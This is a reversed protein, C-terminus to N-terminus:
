QCSEELTLSLGSNKAWRNMGATIPKVANIDKIRPCLTPAIENFDSENIQVKTKWHYFAPSVTSEGKYSCAALSFLTMLFIIRLM